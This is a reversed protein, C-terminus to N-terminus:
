DFPLRILIISKQIFVRFRYNTLYEKINEDVALKVKKETKLSNTIPWLPGYPQRVKALQINLLRDLGKARHKHMLPFVSNCRSLQSSVCSGPVVKEKAYMVNENHFAHKSHSKINM